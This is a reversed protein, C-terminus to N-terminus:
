RLLKKIAPLHTLTEEYGVKIMKEIMEKTLYKKFDNDGTFPSMDPAIVADASKISAQALNYLGIRSSRLAVKVVTFHRNIFENKHYLNVAIIIDAGSEKLIEVPVPDCLGGDVFCHGETKVPEFIVPVSCSAQVSDALKGDKFIYAKGSILDTAVIRLPILTDKFNYKGLIKDVLDKFKGGKILGGNFSFDIISLLNNKSNDIMDKRLLRYDKFVAYHAAVLSGISAGSIFDIPINNEELAQLAGILAYGRFGGSGLALGIKKNNKM